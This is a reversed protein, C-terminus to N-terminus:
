QLPMHQKRQTAQELLGPIGHNLSGFHIFLADEDWFVGSLLFIIDLM